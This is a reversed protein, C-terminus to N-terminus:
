RNNIEKILKDKLTKANRKEKINFRELIKSLLKKDISKDNIIREIEYSYYYIPKTNENLIINAIELNNKLSLELRKKLEDIIKNQQLIKKELGEIRENLIRVKKNEKESVIHRSYDQSNKIFDFADISKARIAGNSDFPIYGNKTNIYAWNAIKLDSDLNRKEIERYLLKGVTASGCLQTYCQEAIILGKFINILEINTLTSITSDGWNESYNIYYGDDINTLISKSDEDLNLTEGLKFLIEIYEREMKPTKILYGSVTPPIFRQPTRAVDM